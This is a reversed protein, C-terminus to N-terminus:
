AAQEFRAILPLLGFIQIFLRQLNLWIISQRSVIQSVQHQFVTAIDVDRKGQRLDAAFSHRIRRVGGVSEAPGVVLLADIVGSDIQELFGNLGLSLNLAAWVIRGVVIVEAHSIQLGVIQVHGFFLQLVRQLDARIVALGAFDLFDESLLVSPFSSRTSITLRWARGSFYFASAM